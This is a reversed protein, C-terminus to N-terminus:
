SNKLGNSAQNSSGGALSSSETGNGDGGEQREFRALAAKRAKERRDTLDDQGKRGSGGISGLLGGFGGGASDNSSSGLKAGSGSFAKRPPTRSGSSGSRSAGQGGSSYVSGGGGGSPGTHGVPAEELLKKPLFCSCCVGIDALRNVHGPIQRGLLAWVLANAFHNCNKRVLNYADPGFDSRLDSVIVRLESQGGEFTGLEITERFKAGPAEKPTSEFIGGGSAFSYESGLIEVGSHHLGFGIAYLADNMPSLDYVNLFVKTGM